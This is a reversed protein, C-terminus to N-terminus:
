KSSSLIISFGLQKLWTQESFAIWEGTLKNDNFYIISFGPIDIKSGTPPLDSEGKFTGKFVWTVIVATDSIFLKETEKLFFDPIVTRSRIIYDELFKIGRMPKFDPLKRLEFTSDVVGNLLSLNGTNWAQIYKEVLPNIKESYNERNCSLFQSLAILMMSILFIKKGAYRSKGITDPCTTESLM